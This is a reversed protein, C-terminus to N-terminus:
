LPFQSQLVPYHGFRVNFPRTSVFIHLHWGKELFSSEIQVALTENWQADCNVEALHTSFWDNSVTGTCGAMEIIEEVGKRKLRDETSIVGVIFVKEDVALTTRQLGKDLIKGIGRTGLIEVTLLSVEGHHSGAPQLVGEHSCKGTRDGVEVGSLWSLRLSKRRKSSKQIRGVTLTGISSGEKPAHDIVSRRRKGASTSLSSAKRGETGAM